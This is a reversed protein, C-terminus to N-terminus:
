KMSDSIYMKAVDLISDRSVPKNLLEFAMGEKEAEKLGTFFENYFATVIYVPVTKDKERIIRLVDVGSMGPMKLDLFVLGVNNEEFKEIGIEGNEAAEVICDLNELILKFSERIALYDDIVLVKKNM